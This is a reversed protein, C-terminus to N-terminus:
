SVVMAFMAMAALAALSIVLAVFWDPAPARM